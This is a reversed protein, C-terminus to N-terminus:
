IETLGIVTPYYSVTELLFCFNDLKKKNSLSWINLCLRNFTLSSGSFDAILDAQYYPCDSLATSNSVDSIYSTDAELKKFYDNPMCSDFDLLSHKNTFAMGSSISIAGCSTVTLATGLLSLCMCIVYFQNYYRYIFFYSCSSYHIHYHLTSFAYTVVIIITSQSM